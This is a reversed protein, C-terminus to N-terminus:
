KIYEGDIYVGIGCINSTVSSVDVGNPLLNIQISNSDRSYCILKKQSLKYTCQGEYECSNGSSTNYTSISVFHPRLDSNTKGFKLTGDHGDQNYKYVHDSNVLNYYIFMNDNQIDINKNKINQALITIVKKCDNAILMSFENGTLKMSAQCDYFAHGGREDKYSIHLFQGLIKSDSILDENMGVINEGKIIFRTEFIQKIEDDHYFHKYESIFKSDEFIEGYEIDIGCFNEMNTNEIEDQLNSGCGLISIYLTFLIIFHIISNNKM